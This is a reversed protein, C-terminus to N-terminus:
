YLIVNFLNNQLTNQLIIRKNIKKDYIYKFKKYVLKILNSM